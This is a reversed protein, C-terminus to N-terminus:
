SHGIIEKVSNINSIRIIKIIEKKKEQKKLMLWEDDIDFLVGKYCYAIDISFLPKKVRIECNKMLYMPLIEHYDMTKHVKDKEENEKQTWIMYILLVIIICLLITTM